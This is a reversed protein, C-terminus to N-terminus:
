KRVTVTVTGVKKVDFPIQNGSTVTLKSLTSGGGKALSATTKDLSGSIGSGAVSSFMIESNVAVNGNNIIGVTNSDSSWSGRWNHNAADWSDANYRFSMEGWSVTVSLMEPVTVTGNKATPHFPHVEFTACDQEFSIEIETSQPTDYTNENVSFNLTGFNGKGMAATSAIILDLQGEASGNYEIQRGGVASTFPTDGLTLKSSDYKVKMHIVGYLGANASDGDVTIPVSINRDSRDSAIVNGATFLATNTVFEASILSGINIVQAKKEDSLAEYAKRANRVADASSVTMLHLKPLAQIANQVALIEPDTKFDKFNICINDIYEHHIGDKEYALMEILMKKVSTIRFDGVYGKRAESDTPFPIEVHTFSSESLVTQKFETMDLNLYEVNWAEGKPHDNDTNVFDKSSFAIRVTEAKKSMDSPAIIDFEISTALSLDTPKDFRYYMGVGRTQWFHLSGRGESKVSTTYEMNDGTYPAWNDPNDAMLTYRYINTDTLEKIRQESLVLNDINGVYTKAYESLADYARRAEEVAAKDSLATDSGKLAAIREGVAAAQRQAESRNLDRVGYIGSIYTDQTGPQAAIAIGTVNEITFNEGASSLDVSYYNNGAVTAKALETYSIRLGYENWARHNNLGTSQELTPIQDSPYSTLVIGFLTYDTSRSWLTSFDSGNEVSGTFDIILESLGTLDRPEAFRLTAELPWWANIKNGDGTIQDCSNDWGAYETCDDIIDNYWASVTHVDTDFVASIDTFCVAFIGGPACCIFGTVSTIDFNAGKRSWDFELVNDESLCRGALNTVPLCYGAYTDLSIIGDREGTPLDGYSTLAIGYGKGQDATMNKFMDYCKTDPTADNDINDVWGMRLAKIGTLNYTLAFKCTFSPQWWIYTNDATSETVNGNNMSEVTRTEVKSGGGPAWSWNDTSKCSDLQVSEPRVWRLNDIYCRVTSNSGFMEDCAFGVAVYTGSPEDLTNDYDLYLTKWSDGSLGNTSATFHMGRWANETNYFYMSFTAPIPRGSDFNVDIALKYDRIKQKATQASFTKDGNLDVVVDTAVAGDCRERNIMLSDTGESHKGFVSGQQVTVQDWDYVSFRSYWEKNGGNVCWPDYTAGDITESGDIFFRNKITGDASCIVINDYYIAATAENSDGSYWAGRDGGDLDGGILIGINSSGVIGSGDSLSCRRTYWKDQAYSCTQREGNDYPKVLVGNQDAASGLRRGDGFSNRDGLELGGLGGSFNRCAGGLYVDYQLFDGEQITYGSNDGTNLWRYHSYSRNSDDSRDFVFEFKLVANDVSLGYEKKISYSAGANGLRLRGWGNQGYASTTTVAYHPAADDFNEITESYTEANAPTFDFTPLACFVLVACLVLALMKRGIKIM